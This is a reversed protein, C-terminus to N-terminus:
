AVSSMEEWYEDITKKLQKVHNKPNEQFVQTTGDESSILIVINNVSLDYREKLMISYATAQLFYETIYEKKKEKGSSKFDVISLKNDYEAVCDVRGALRLMDSWLGNELLRINDIKDLEPQLQRFLFEEAFSPLISKIGEESSHHENLLYSEICSHFKTGRTTARKSEGPNNRNWEAFFLRKKWNVVTTVSPYTNGTPTQYFRKGNISQHEIEIESLFDHHFKKM